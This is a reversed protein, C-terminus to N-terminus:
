LTQLIVFHEEKENLTAFYSNAMAMRIYPFERSPLGQEFM